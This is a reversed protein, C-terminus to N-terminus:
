CIVLGVALRLKLSILRVTLCCLLFSLSTKSQSESTERSSDKYILPEPESPVILSLHAFFVFAGSRCTWPM